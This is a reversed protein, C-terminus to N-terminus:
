LLNVRTQFSPWNPSAWLAIWTWKNKLCVGGGEQRPQIIGRGIVPFWFTALFILDIQNQFLPFRNLFHEHLEKIKAGGARIKGSIHVRVQPSWWLRRMRRPGGWMSESAALRQRAAFVCLKVKELKETLLCVSHSKLIYSVWPGVFIFDTGCALHYAASEAKVVFAFKPLGDM